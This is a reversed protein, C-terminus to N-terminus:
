LNMEQKLAPVRRRSVPIEEECDELTLLLTGSSQPAISKIRSLNVLYRRHVRFIGSQALQQELKTLSSTSLYRESSTYLYSYDDKAM